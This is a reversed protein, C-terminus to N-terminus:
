STYSKLSQGNSTTTCQRQSEVVALRWCLLPPGAQVLVSEDRLPHFISGTVCCCFRVYRPRVTFQDHDHRTLVSPYSDLDCCAHLSRPEVSWPTPHVTDSRELVSWHFSAHQAVYANGFWTDELQQGFIRKQEGVLVTFTNGETRREWLDWCCSQDALRTLNVDVITPTGETQLGFGREDDVSLSPHHWSSREDRCTICNHLQDHVHSEDSGGHRRGCWM